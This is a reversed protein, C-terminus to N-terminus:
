ENGNVMNDPVVADREPVIHSRRLLAYVPIGLLVVACGLLAQWPTNMLVLVLLVVIQAIFILPTLPYAPASVLPAADGDRRRFVFLTSVTLGLFLVAVFLFYAIIQEFAGLAILLSTMIGQIGIARMPTGFVPHLKAVAPLFVGDRAMAYYVRPSLMIMAAMSGVVCLVVAGALLNAGARGFLIAGAQAVFTRDSTVSEPPVLYLFAGSVLVYAAVVAIVGLVLARPLTRAPNKIEGAIKSVDWWGGFSYFAAVLGGAIAPLLPSSGPRQAVFPAFHSWSGLRFVLAWVVILALIGLKLWTTYRLFGAGARTNRMNIACLVAITAIAMLKTVLSNWGFIYAGYTAGGVALAATVGPDMVLLSMWGYLFAVREGFAERLYVYLGGAEPYRAALEGFCLAGSITIAGMVLWVMLLWFPSGLSRAM